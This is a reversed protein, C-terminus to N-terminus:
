TLLQPALHLSNGRKKQESRTEPHLILRHRFLLYVCIAAYSSTYNSPQLFLHLFNAFIVGWPSRPHKKISQVHQYIVILSQVRSTQSATHYPDPKQQMLQFDKKGWADTTVALPRPMHNLTFEPDETKALQIMDTSVLLDTHHRHRSMILETATHHRACFFVSDRNSLFQSLLRRYHFVYLVIPDFSVWINCSEDRRRDCRERGRRGWM